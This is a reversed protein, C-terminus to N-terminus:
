SLSVCCRHVHLAHAATAAMTMTAPTAAALEAMRTTTAAGAAVPLREVAVV